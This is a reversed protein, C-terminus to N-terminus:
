LSCVKEFCEEVKEVKNGVAYTELLKMYTEYDIEINKSKMIEVVLDVKHFEKKWEFSRILNIYRDKEKLTNNDDDVLLDGTSSGM